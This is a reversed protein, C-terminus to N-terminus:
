PLTVAPADFTGDAATSLPSEVGDVQVRVLHDGPAMGSVPVTVEDADAARAPAPFSAADGGAPPRPSLLLAVRQRAGLVPRVGVTIDASVTGDPAIEANEVTIAFGGDAPRVEPRLAFSVVNSAVGEHPTPPVGLDIRRLVQVTGMGARLGSPLVVTLRTESQFSPAAEIAGFRAVLGDIGLGSGELLLGSGAVIPAEAGAAALARVVVPRGAPVARVTRERVPLSPSPTVDAEILIASAMYAVSLALPTNFFVSWLKSLEELDLGCPTIRVSEPQEDLDTDALYFRPDGPDADAAALRVNEIVGRTILPRAHLASMVSGALRQPELTAEDGYFTLLYYLDIATLPRDVVRGAPDRTPLDQNRWAPNPSVRYLYVNVRPDADGDPLPRENTVKSGPVAALASQLLQGIATTVTAVALFNSM